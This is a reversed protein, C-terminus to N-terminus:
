KRESLPKSERLWSENFAVCSMKSGFLYIVGNPRQALAMYGGVSEVPRVYPWTKGDDLSLAAYTGRQRLIRNRADISCMLLAGSSLRLASAKM